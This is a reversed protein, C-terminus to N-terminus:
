TAPGACADVYSRLEACIRQRIIECADADNAGRQGAAHLDPLYQRLLAPPIPRHMNQILRNVARMSEPESWYYRIRDRFSFHRLFRLGEPTGQYHHQWYVPRNLMLEEMVSLLRSRFRLDPWQEEIWSLAYLAERLAFTLCPGTKLIAFHDRVMRSLAVPTQYDSAHVEFTMKGPLRDHAASLAQAADQRYPAIRRDGFDIGPQVVVALVRQWADSLGAHRFEAEFQALMAFLDDPATIKVHPSLDDLGGGPLPVETGIVYLPPPVSLQAATQEAVGCLRAARQAAIEVPLEATGDDACATATDLHIKQFGARGCAETLAMANHLAKEAPLRRWVHPGLHDAGLIIREAPLGAAQTLQEVFDAFDAPTMGTYGGSQNVQNATAEILLLGNRERMLGMAARLVMPHASCISVIGSGNALHRDRLGILPHESVQIKRGGKGPIAQRPISMQLGHVTPM